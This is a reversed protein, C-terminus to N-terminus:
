GAIVYLTAANKTGIADYEAQTLSVINTIQDAGTIGTVNSSVKDSATIRVDAAASFDTIDAAVHTHSTNAKGNLATQTATSVPKSVDSTNDVNALGVDTKTLVVAGTRGAVSQVPAAAAAEATTTYQPHPDANATHQSLVTNATGLAEKGDLATQLGVITAISQTGTHNSRQIANARANEIATAQATSVPKNVDSTNDVNALNVDTKTLVVVGTRGAVSQVPAANAAEATTTYQPHPDINATHQSLVANAVGLAEKGDLATQLGTITAIAQSGTHNSRQIANARATEIATAQATSVPKSVDSTNDVNALGVDTKTLVVAGTRGAVSQVPAAAAAEATTTYQPHPDANATHQSLVTNATGLAEKGDLAGQLGTVTAIAQSGTHNSRQIANARAVEIAAAQLTSVPKSVDSTNDVNALNVDSKTLVVDGTRGAVSQVPASSTDVYTVGNWRYIRNATTDIYLKGTIGTVPFSGVANYEFVDTLSYELAAWNNVGNGIKVRKTDTEIGLEGEMLLPNVNAWNSAIDRRIQIRVAM